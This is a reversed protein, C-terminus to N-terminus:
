DVGIGLLFLKFDIAILWLDVRMFVCLAQLGGLSGSSFHLSATNNFNLGESSLDILSFAQSTGM